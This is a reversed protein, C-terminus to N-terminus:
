TLLARLNIFAFYIYLYAAFYIHPIWFMLTAEWVGIENELCTNHNGPVLTAEWVVTNTDLCWQKFGFVLNHYIM